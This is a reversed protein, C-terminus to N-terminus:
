TAAKRHPGDAKMTKVHQHHKMDVNHKKHESTNFLSKNAQQERM